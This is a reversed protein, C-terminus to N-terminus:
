DMKTTKILALMEQVYAGDEASVDAQTMELKGKITEATQKDKDKLVDILLMVVANNRAFGEGKLTFAREVAQEAKGEKYESVCIQGYIYQQYAGEGWDANKEECHQAFEDDAILKEGCSLIQDYDDCEIAVDMAYAIYYIDDTRQYARTANRISSGNMGLDYTIKMMTSPYVCLLTLLMFGFLVAIAVLTSLLARIIVKDVRM